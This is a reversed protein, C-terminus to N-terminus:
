NNQGQNQINTNNANDNKHALIYVIGIIIVSIGMVAFMIHIILFDSSSPMTIKTNHPSNAIGSNLANASAILFQTAPKILLDCFIIFIGSTIYLYQPNKKIFYLITPIAMLTLILAFLVIFMIM